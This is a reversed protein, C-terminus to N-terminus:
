QGVITKYCGGFSFSSFAVNNSLSYSSGAADNCSMDHDLNNGASNATIWLKPAGDAFIGNGGNRHVANESAAGFSLGQVWVGHGGNDNITNRTFTARAAGAGALVAIGDQGNYSLVSREVVITVMTGALGGAGIGKGENHAFVNDVV